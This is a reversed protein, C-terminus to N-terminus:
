QRLAVLAKQYLSEHAKVPDTMGTVARLVGPWRPHLGRVQRAACLAVAAVVGPLTHAAVEKGVLVKLCTHVEGSVM